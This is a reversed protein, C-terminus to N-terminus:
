RDGGAPSAAGAGPLPARPDLADRLGDGALNFATVTATVALGPFVPVWWAAVLAGQGGAVMGGWSPTPPPVGLGLFSLAAEALIADGVGLTAAVLVPNLVNPLVHRGVIRFKGYGLAQAARVYEREKVSLVEGRVLRATGMWGTAALLLVVTGASPALVAAAAVLLVIRPFSLFLDVTRMAASDKWGGVYGAGAGVATGLATAAAVAPLAVQLSVRAGVLVRSLVDRGLRDTGLPHLLSPSLRAAEPLGLSRAPDYPALLPALLSVLLIVALLGLSLTAPRNAAFRRAAARAPHGTGAEGPLLDRLPRERTGWTWAVALGAVLTAVAAWEWPGGGRLTAAVRDARFAGVALLFAWGVLVAAGGPERARLARLGPVARETVTAVARASDAARM